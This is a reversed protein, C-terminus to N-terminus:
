VIGAEGLETIGDCSQEAIEFAPGPRAFAIGLTVQDVLDQWQEAPVFEGHLFLGIVFAPEIDGIVQKVQGWGRFLRRGAGRRRGLAVALAGRDKLGLCPVEREVLAFRAAGACWRGLQQAIEARDIDGGVAIDAEANQGVSPQPPEALPM